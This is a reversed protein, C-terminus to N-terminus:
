VRVRVRVRGEGWTGKCMTQRKRGKKKCKRRGEQRGVRGMGQWKKRAHSQFVCAHCSWTATPLLKLCCGNGGGGGEAKWEGKGQLQSTGAVSCGPTHSSGGHGECLRRNRGMDGVQAPEEAM